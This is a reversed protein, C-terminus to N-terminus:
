RLGLWSTKWFFDASHHTGPDQHKTRSTPPGLNALEPPTSHGQVLLPAATSAETPSFGGVALRGRRLCFSIATVTGLGREQLEQLTSRPKHSPIIVLTVAGPFCASLACRDRERRRALQGRPGQGQAESRGPTPWSVLPRSPNWLRLGPRVGKAGGINRTAAMDVHRM